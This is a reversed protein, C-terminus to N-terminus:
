EAGANGEVTFGAAKLAKTMQVKPLMELGGPGGLYSRPLVIPKSLKENAASLASSNADLEGEIMDALWNIANDPYDIVSEGSVREFLTTIQQKFADREKHAAELKALLKEYDRYAVYSGSESEVLDYMCLENASYRDVM